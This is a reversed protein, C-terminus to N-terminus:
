AEKQKKPAKNRKKREKPLEGKEALQLLRRERRSGLVRRLALSLKQYLLRLPALLVWLLPRVLRRWLWLLVTRVAWVIRDSLRMLLRGITLRYLCFALGAGAFAFWRVVGDQLSYFLLLFLIAAFFAFLLDEVFLLLTGAVSRRQPKGDWATLPIPAQARGFSATPAFAIRRIRLIDYVLGLLVGLAMSNWLLAVGGFAESM